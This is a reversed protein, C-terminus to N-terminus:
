SVEPAPEVLRRITSRLRPLEAGGVLECGHREALRRAAPTFEHNTVVMTRACDQMPAGAVVEQVAAAGVPRAQRKCQIALRNPRKGVIIDVGWDGTVATMIVPVGCSRAVRAVYDEFETGSMAATADDRPGPTLAGVFAGALFRPVAVLMAPTLAAILLCHQPALGASWAVAGAAVATVVLVRIRM